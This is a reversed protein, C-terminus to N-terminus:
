HSPLCAMVVAPPGPPPCLVHLYLWAHPPLLYNTSPGGFAADTLCLEITPPCGVATPPYGIAIPPHGVATLPHGVTISTPQLPVSPLDVTFLATGLPIKLAFFLFVAFHTLSCGAKEM